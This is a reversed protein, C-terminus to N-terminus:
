QDVPGNIEDVVTEIHRDPDTIKGRGGCYRSANPRHPLDGDGCGFIELAAARRAIEIVEGRMVQHREAADVADLTPTKATAATVDIVRHLWPQCDVRRFRRDICCDRAEADRM